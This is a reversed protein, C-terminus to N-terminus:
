LMVQYSEAVPLSIVFWVLRISTRPSVSHNRLTVLSSAPFYAVVTIYTPASDSTFSIHQGECKQLLLLWLAGKGGENEGSCWCPAVFLGGLQHHVLWRRFTSPWSFSALVKCVSNRIYKGARQIIIDGFQLAVIDGGRDRPVSHTIPFM